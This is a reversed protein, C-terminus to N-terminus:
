ICSSSGAVLILHSSTFVVVSLANQVYLLAVLRKTEENIKKTNVHAVVM